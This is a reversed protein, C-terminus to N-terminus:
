MLDVYASCWLLDAADQEECQQLMHLDEIITALEQSLRVRDDMDEAKAEDDEEALLYNSWCDEEDDSSDYYNSSYLYSHVDYIDYYYDRLEYYRELACLSCLCYMSDTGDLDTDSELELSPDWADDLDYADEQLQLSFGRSPKQQHRRRQRQTRRAAVRRAQPPSARSKCAAIPRGMSETRSQRLTAGRRHYRVKCAPPFGVCFDDHGQTTDSTCAPNDYTPRSVLPPSAAKATPLRTTADRAYFSRRCDDAFKGFRKYDTEYLNSFDRDLEEKSGMAAVCEAHGSAAALFPAKGMDAGAELLFRVTEAHGHAAAIDLPATRWFGDIVCFHVAPRNFSAGLRQLTLLCETKGARAAGHAPVTFNTVRNVDARMEVLSELVEVAGHQAAIYAPTERGWIVPANVLEELEEESIGAQAAESRLICIDDLSCSRFALKLDRRVDVAARALIALIHCDCPLSQGAEMLEGDCLLKITAAPRNFFAASALQVRLNEVCSDVPLDLYYLTGDLASVTISM